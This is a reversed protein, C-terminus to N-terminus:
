RNDAGTDIPKVGPPLAAKWGAQLLSAMERRTEAYSPDDAVNNTEWPIRRWTSSRRSRATRSSWTATGAPGSSRAPIAPGASWSSPRRGPANPTSWSRRSARGRSTGPCSRAPGARGPDAGPRRVRRVRPLGPRQGPRGAGARDPGGQPDARADLVEVLVRSRGPPLWSRRPLGRDHEQGAGDPRARALIRGVNDDVFSVCAYYAAIAARAQEPTPQHQMFIDPNNGHARKVYHAPMNVFSEPPAAPTPITAPDYMDIYKKPAVLPTHPRSQSVALFFPKKSQAFEELLASATAAM